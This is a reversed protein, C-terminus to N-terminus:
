GHHATLYCSRASISRCDSLATDNYLSATDNYLICYSHQYYHICSHNKTALCYSHSRECNCNVRSHLMEAGNRYALEWVRFIDFIPCRRILPLEITIVYRKSSPHMRLRVSTSCRLRLRSVLSCSSSSM